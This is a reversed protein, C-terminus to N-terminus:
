RGDFVIFSVRALGRTPADGQGTRIPGPRQRPRQDDGLDNVSTVSASTRSSISRCKGACKRSLAVHRTTAFSKFAAASPASGASTEIASRM